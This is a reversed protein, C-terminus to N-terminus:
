SQVAVSLGRRAAILLKPKPPLLAWRMRSWCWGVVPATLTARGFAGSSSMTMQLAASIPPASLPSRSTRRRRIFWGTAGAFGHSVTPASGRCARVGGISRSCASAWCSTTRDSLRETSSFTVRGSGSRAPTKTPMPHAASEARQSSRSRAALAKPSEGPVSSCLCVWSPMAGGSWAAVTRPAMALMVAM